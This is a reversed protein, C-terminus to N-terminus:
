DKLYIHKNNIIMMKGPKNPNPALTEFNIHPGNGHKGLIDSDGMRVQRTGDASVFRGNGLDKYGKGLFDEAADLAQNTTLTTGNKINEFEVGCANHVLVGIESVFYTHWDDVEFNYVKVPKELRETKIEDVEKTSEDALRLLDGEKLDKAKTWGKEEVYFPHEETTNIVIGNVKVHILTETERVFINKVKKYETEGTEENRSLVEDEVTVDKIKKCGDKTKVLTEETFCQKMNEAITGLLLMLMADDYQDNISEYSEEFMTLFGTVFEGYELSDQKLGSIDAIDFAAVTALNWYETPM